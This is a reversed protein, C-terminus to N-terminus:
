PRSLPCASNGIAPRRLTTCPVPPTARLESLLAAQGPAPCLLCLARLAGADRGLLAPAALCLRLPLVM